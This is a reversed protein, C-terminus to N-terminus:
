EDDGESDDDSDEEDSDDDSYDDDRGARIVAEMDERGITGDFDDPHIVEGNDDTPPEFDYLEALVYVLESKNLNSINNDNPEECARSVPHLHEAM